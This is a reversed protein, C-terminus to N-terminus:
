SPSTSSGTVRVAVWGPRRDSCAEQSIQAWIQMGSCASKMRFREEPGAVGAASAGRKAAASRAVGRAEGQGAVRDPAVKYRVPGPREAAAMWLAQNMGARNSVTAALAGCVRVTM